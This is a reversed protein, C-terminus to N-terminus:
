AEAAHRECARLMALRAVRTLSVQTAIAL